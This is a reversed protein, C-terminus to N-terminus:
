APDGPGTAGPRPMRGALEGNTVFDVDDHSAIYGLLNRLRQWDGHRELEWSHGWLHFVGRSDRARDFMRAALTDWGRWDRISIRPAARSGLLKMADARYRAAHTTTAMRLPDAPPDTHFRAITRAVQFGADRVVTVHEARYAGYPYCFATVARGIIQELLANGDRIERTATDLPVRTLHPHSLTHSGIEFEQAIERVARAGLRRPAPIERCRPAVYFTGTFGCRRLEAALRTDLEHGDDWSTTVLVRTGSM